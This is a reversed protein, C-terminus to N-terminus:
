KGICFESFIRELLDEDATEGTVEGLAAFAADLDISIFDLPLEQELASLSAHLHEAASRLAAQHRASTILTEEGFSARGALVLNALAEELEDLGAGTLMSTFVTNVEPWLQHVDELDLVRAQDAKNVVILM